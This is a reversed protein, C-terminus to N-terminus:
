SNGNDTLILPVPAPLTVNAITETMLATESTVYVSINKQCHDCKYANNTNLIVPVFEVKKLSCPCTVELGQLSFEKIRENELKKNKLEIYANLIIIFANYAGYQVIIGIMIGLTYSMGFHKFLLGFSIATVALIVLQTLLRNVM